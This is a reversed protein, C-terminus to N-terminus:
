KNWHKRSNYVNNVAEIYCVFSPHNHDNQSLYKNKINEYQERVKNWKNNRKICSVKKAINKSNPAKEWRYCDYYSNIGKEHILRSHSGDNEELIIAIDFKFTTNKRILVRIEGTTIVSTSDKCNGLQYKPAVANFANIVNQKITRLDAYNDYRVIKLNYDLDITENGNQMILKRQGSGILSFTTGMDYDEKLTHCLDQLLNGGLQRMKSILEKDTVYHYM